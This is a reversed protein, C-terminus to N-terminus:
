QAMGVKIVWRSKPSIAISHLDIIGAFSYLHAQLNALTLQYHLVRLPPPPATAGGAGISAVPRGEDKHMCGEDTLMCRQAHMSCPFM